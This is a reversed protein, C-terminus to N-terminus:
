VHFCVWFYEPRVRSGLSVYFLCMSLVADLADLVSGMSLTREDVLHSLCLSFISEVYLTMALCMSSYAEVMHDDMADLVLMGFSCVTCFVASRMAVPQVCFVFM